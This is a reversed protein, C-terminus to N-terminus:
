PMMREAVNRLLNEAANINGMRLHQRAEHIERIADAYLMHSFARAAEERVYSEAGNAAVKRFELRVSACYEKEHELPAFREPEKADFSVNALPHHQPSDGVIVCRMHHIFPLTM